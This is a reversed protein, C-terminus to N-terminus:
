TTFLEMGELVADAISRKTIVGRLSEESTRDAGDTVLALTADAARLRTMVELLPTAEEVTIFGPDALDALTAAEEQQASPRTVAERTLFGVIGEAGQVLFCSVEPKESATRVLDELGGGAPVTCFRTDMLDGTRRLYYPNAQLAAPIDHGRRALKQTYISERNLVVRLGYSLAVTVTMPIIVTYDLTMEFIMVIAALAAGTSGGVVGAMGAVAFAPPDIPLDPLVHKLALGYVGGL